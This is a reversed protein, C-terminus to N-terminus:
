VLTYNRFEFPRIGTLREVLDSAYFRLHEKEFFPPTV